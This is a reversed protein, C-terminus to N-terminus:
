KKCCNGALCIDEIRDNPQALEAQVGGLNVIEGHFTNKTVNSPLNAIPEIKSSDVLTM